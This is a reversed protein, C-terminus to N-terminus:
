ELAHELCISVTRRSRHVRADGELVAPPATSHHQFNLPIMEPRRLPVGLVRARKGTSEGEKVVAVQILEDM